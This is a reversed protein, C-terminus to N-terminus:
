YKSKKYMGKKAKAAVPPTVAPTAAPKASTVAANKAEQEKIYNYMDFMYKADQPMSPNGTSNWNFTPSLIPIGLAKLNEDQEFKGKKNVLSAVAAQKEASQADRAQAIQTNYVADFAGQNLRDANFSMEANAVDAKSRGEADYNQKTQFAKQKADLGAIYAMNSDAGARIAATGMNDIDQLESQINLTQPRLYPADIEPIAYPYIEQAQALGMADPIAQYLPFQGPTYKGTKGPTVDNIKLGEPDEPVNEYQYDMGESKNRLRVMEGITTNGIVGDAKSIPKGKYMDDYVGQPTLDVDGLVDKFEPNDKLDALDLYSQQFDSGQEDTLPTMGLKTAIQRYIKNKMGGSTRDLDETKIDLNPDNKAAEKITYFQKQANMFNDMFQDQTMTSNPNRQKYKAYMADKVKAFEPRNFTSSLEDFNKNYDGITTKKNAAIVKMPINNEGMVYDGVKISPDGKQKITVGAPVKYKVGGGGDGMQLTQTEQVNGGYQMEALIKDQVSQPLAKFGANNIRAGHKAEMEGNSNGNLAQQDEFLSDLIKQNRQMMINATDKDVQKAFPNDMTKKYSTIDYNKAMQAFTKKSGEPKLSNSYVRTEDPLNTPIGGREHSPGTAMETEFNPLQIFEGGEIEVNNGGGSSYRKNIQAGMEAKITPQYETGGSTTRGYMYNYDYLPKSNRQQISENLNRQNKLDQNYGLAADIGLLGLSIADGGQGKFQDFWNKELSGSDVNKTLENTKSFRQDETPVQDKGLTVFSSSNLNPMTVKPNVKTQWDWKEQPSAIFGPLNLFEGATDPNDTLQPNSLVTPKPNLTDKGGTDFRKFLRNRLM